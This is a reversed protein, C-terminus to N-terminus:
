KPMLTVAMQHVGILLRLPFSAVVCCRPRPSHRLCDQRGLLKLSVIMTWFNVYNKANLSSQAVAQLDNDPSQIAPMDADRLFLFFPQWYGWELDQWDVEKIKKVIKELRSDPFHKKVLSGAPLCSLKEQVAEVMEFFNEKNEEQMIHM